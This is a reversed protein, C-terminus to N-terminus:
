WTMVAILDHELIALGVDIVDSEFEVKSWTQSDLDDELTTLTTYCFGRTGASHPADDKYGLLFVGETLDYIGSAQFPITIGIISRSGRLSAWNEDRQKLAKLRQFYSLGPPFDDHVGSLCLQKTYTHFGSFEILSRLHKCTLQLHGVDGIPLLHIVKLLLEPPLTLLATTSMDPILFVDAPDHQM